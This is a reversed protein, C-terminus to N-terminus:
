CPLLYEHNRGELGKERGRAGGRLEMPQVTLVRSLGRVSGRGSGDM